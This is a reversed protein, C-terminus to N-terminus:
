SSGQPALGITDVNQCKMTAQWFAPSPSCWFALWFSGGLKVLETVRPILGQAGTLYQNPPTM